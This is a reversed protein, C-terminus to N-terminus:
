TPEFWWGSMKLDNVRCPQNTFEMVQLSMDQMLGSTVTASPLGVWCVLEWSIGHFGMSDQAGAM